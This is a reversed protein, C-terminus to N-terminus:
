QDHWNISLNGSSTPDNEKKEEKEKGKGKGKRKNLDRVQTRTGRRQRWPEKLLSSLGEIPWVACLQILRLIWVISSSKFSSLDRLFRKKKEKKKEKKRKLIGIPNQCTTMQERNGGPCRKATAHMFLYHRRHEKEKEKRQGFIHWLSCFLFRCSIKWKKTTSPTRRTSQLRCLSFSLFLPSFSDSSIFILPFPFSYFSEFYNM